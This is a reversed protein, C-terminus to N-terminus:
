CQPSKGRRVARRGALGHDPQGHVGARAEDDRQPGGHRGGQAPPEASRGKGTFHEDAATAKREFRYSRCLGIRPLPRKWRLAAWSVLTRCVILAEDVPGQRIIPISGIVGGLFGAANAVGRVAQNDIGTYASEQLQHLCSDFFGRYRSDCESLDDLLKGITEERYDGMLMMELFSAYSYLYVASRYSGFFKQVKDFKNPAFNFHIFEREEAKKRSLTKYFDINALAERKIDGVQVLKAHIFSENDFNLKYATTIDSLTSLDAKMHAQKDLELFGLIEDATKQLHDLKKNIQITMAAVFIMAPAITAVGAGAAVGGVPIWRAQGVIANGNMIAGLNGFDNARALVGGAAGNPFVCQYLQGTTKSAEAIGQLALMISAAAGGYEAIDGIPFSVTKAEDQLSIERDVPVFEIEVLRHALEKRNAEYDM